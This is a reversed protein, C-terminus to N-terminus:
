KGPSAVAMRWTGLSDAAKVATNHYGHCTACSSAAKGQPSHCEVCMQKPPLLVDATDRSHTADHCTVCAVSQHKAHDFRGQMLWRNLIVPATVAPVADGTSKVEHCYACGAYRPRGDPGTRATNFFAERELDEGAHSQQRIAAMQQGVFEELARQETIGKVRRGFDAYQTLLSRLFARVAVPNGHPLHLEPNNADFQLAHCSQCNAEFTVPRMYAETADPKHCDTCTLKHGNLLPIDGTLHKEHDFKLTDTDAPPHFNPHNAFSTFAVKM